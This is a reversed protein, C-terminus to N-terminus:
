AGGVRTATARLNVEAIMWALIFLLRERSLPDHPSDKCVEYTEVLRAVDVYGLEQTVAGWTLEHLIDDYGGSTLSRAFFDGFDENRAPRHIAEPLDHAEHYVRLINKNSRFYVPLGQCYTYLDEDAFPTMPWVGREIYISNVSLPIGRMSVSLPALVDRSDDPVDMYEDLFRRTLYPPYQLGRRRAAEEPGFQLQQQSSVTNEFLEDGGIGTVAVTVGHEVLKAVMTAMLSSYLDTFPYLPRRPQTTLARLLPYDSSSGVPTRLVQGRTRRLILDLKLRQADGFEGPYILSACLPPRTGPRARAFYLPLTASDIGGSLEFAFSSEPLRREIFADLHTDLVAKFRRPDSPPADRSCVWRRRRLQRVRPSGGADSTLEQHAELVGLERWLLPRAHPNPVLIDRLSACDLTLRPLTAAAAGYDDSLVLCDGVHGYFLPLTAFADRTVHLRGDRWVRVRLFESDAACRPSGYGLVVSDADFKM